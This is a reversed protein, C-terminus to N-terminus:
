IDGLRAHTKFPRLHGEHIDIFAMPLFPEHDEALSYIRQRFLLADDMKIQVDGVWM